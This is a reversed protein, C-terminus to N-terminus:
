IVKQAHFASLDTYSIWSGWVVFLWPVWRVWNLLKNIMGVAYSALITSLCCIITCLLQNDSKRVHLIVM